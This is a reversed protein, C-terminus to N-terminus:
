HIQFVEYDLVVFYSETAMSLIDTRGTGGSLTGNFKGYEYYCQNVFNIGSQHNTTANVNCNDRILLDGGFAPGCTSYHRVAYESWKEKIGFILPCEKQELHHSSRILFLFADKDAKLGLKSTWPVTTYAGFINGFQSKVITITPGNKNDCKNHFTKATFGDKTARMLLNFRKMNSVKKILLQVFDIDEKVTLLQSGIIQKSFSVILYKLPMPVNIQNSKNEYKNRIFHWVILELSEPHSMLFANILHTKINPNM